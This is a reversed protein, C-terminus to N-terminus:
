ARTPRLAPDHLHPELARDAADPVVFCRINGTPTRVGPLPAAPAAAAFAAAVLLLFLVRTVM